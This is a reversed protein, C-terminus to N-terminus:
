VCSGDTRFTWCGPALTWGRPVSVTTRAGAEDISYSFGRMGKDAIGTATYVYSRPTATCSLEFADGQSPAPPAIGCNGSDDVYTRRDAFFQEMRTRHDSLVAIGGLIRSRTVQGSYSPLAIAAAIALMAGVVLMEMATFGADARRNRRTKLILM